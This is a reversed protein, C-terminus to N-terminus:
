KSPSALSSCAPPACVGTATDLTAIFAEALSEPGSDGAKEGSAFPAAGDVVVAYAGPAIPAAAMKGDPLKLTNGTAVNRIVVTFATQDAAMAQPGYASQGVTVFLAALAAFRSFRSM